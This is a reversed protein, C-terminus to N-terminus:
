RVREDLLYRATEDKDRVVHVIPHGEDRFQRLLVRNDEREVVGGGCAIVYGRPHEALLRKLIVTEADRFAAWGLDSSPRDTLSTRARLGLQVM